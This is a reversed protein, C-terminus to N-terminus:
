KHALVTGTRITYIFAKHFLFIFGKIGQGSFSEHLRKGLVARARVFLTRTEILPFCTM